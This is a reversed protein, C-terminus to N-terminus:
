IIEDLKLAFKADVLFSKEQRNKAWGKSQVFQEKLDPAPSRLKLAAKELLDVWDKKLPTNM